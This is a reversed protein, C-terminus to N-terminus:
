IICIKTDDFGFYSTNNKDFILCSPKLEKIKGNNNM